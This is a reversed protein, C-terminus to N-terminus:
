ASESAQAWAGLWDWCFGSQASQACAGQLVHSWNRVLLYWMGELRAAGFSLDIRFRGM